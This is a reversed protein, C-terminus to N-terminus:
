SIATMAACPFGGSGQIAAVSKLTMSLLWPPPADDDSDKNDGGIM